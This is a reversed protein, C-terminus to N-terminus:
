IRYETYSPDLENPLETLAVHKVNKGNSKQYFIKALLTIIRPITMGDTPLFNQEFTAHPRGHRQPFHCLVMLVFERLINVCRNISERDVSSVDIIIGIFNNKYAIIIKSFSHVLCNSFCVGTFGLLALVHLVQYPGISAGKYILKLVAAKM